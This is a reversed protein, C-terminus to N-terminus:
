GGNIVDQGRLVAGKLFPQNGDVGTDVVAVIVGAGETLPWVRQFGLRRQAWPVTRDLSTGQPLNACKQTLQPGALAPAAASLMAATVSCVAAVRLKATVRSVSRGAMRAM